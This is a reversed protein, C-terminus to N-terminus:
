GRALRELAVALNYRADAFDPAIQLVRRLEAAALEPDGAELILNALNFRAEPQDPDAALALEFERRAAGVDGRAFAILGLNTRAAALAPDLALAQAYCGAALDLDPAVPDSEARLGEAFWDYATVPESRPAPAERAPSRSSPSSPPPSIRSVRARAALEDLRFDFVQQGSAEFAGAGDIVVLAAGDFAVRVRDLPRNVQPLSSRVRDLAKRIEAATFGRDVLEKAAKVGVLDQFSFLLKGDRRLSPGVFGVQAWYRLKSSPLNLIQAVAAFSFAADPAAAGANM